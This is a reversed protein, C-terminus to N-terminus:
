ACRRREHRRRGGAGMKVGQKAMMEEMEQAARAAHRGDAQQMEAMQREMQRRQGQMKNTVEWLGPKLNQARRGAFRCCARRRPHSLKM